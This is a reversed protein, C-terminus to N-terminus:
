TQGDIEDLKDYYQQLIVKLKKGYNKLINEWRSLPFTDKIDPIILDFFDALVQPQERSYVILAMLFANNMLAFDKMNGLQKNVESFIKQKALIKAEVKIEDNLQQITALYINIGNFRLRHRDDYQMTILTTNLFEVAHLEFIGHNNRRIWIANLKALDILQNTNIDYRIRDLPLDNPIVGIEVGNTMSM